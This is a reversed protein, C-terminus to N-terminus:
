TKAHEITLFPKLFPDIIIVINEANCTEADWPTEGPFIRSVDGLISGQIISCYYEM